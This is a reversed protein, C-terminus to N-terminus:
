RYVELQAGMEGLYQVLNYTFSDYNDIVAIM